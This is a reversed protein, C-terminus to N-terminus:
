IFVSGRWWRGICRITPRVGDAHRVIPKVLELVVLSPQIRRDHPKEVVDSFTPFQYGRKRILFTSLQALAESPTLEIPRRDNLEPISVQM